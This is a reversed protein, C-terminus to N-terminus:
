MLITYSMWIGVHLIFRQNLKDLVGEYNNFCIGLFIQKSM